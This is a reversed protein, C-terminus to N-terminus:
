KEPPPPETPALVSPKPVDIWRDITIKDHNSIDSLRKAARETCNPAAYVDPQSHKDSRETLWLTSWRAPLKSRGSPTSAMPHFCLCGFCQVLMSRSRPEDRLDIGDHMAIVVTGNVNGEVVAETTDVPVRMSRRRRTM